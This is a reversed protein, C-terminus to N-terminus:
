ELRSTLCMPPAQNHYNWPTGNPCVQSLSADPRHAKTAKMVSNAALNGGAVTEGSSRPLSQERRLVDIAHLVSNMQNSLDYIQTEVRLERQLLLDNIEGLRHGMAEVRVGQQNQTTRLQDSIQLGQQVSQRVDVISNTIAQHQENCEARTNALGAFACQTEAQAELVAARYVSLRQLSVASGVVSRACPMNKTELEDGANIMPPRIKKHNGYACTRTAGQNQPRGHNMGGMITLDPLLSRTSQTSPSAAGARPARSCGEEITAEMANSNPWKEDESRRRADDVWQETRRSGGSISSRESPPAM